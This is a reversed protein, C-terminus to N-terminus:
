RPTRSQLLLVRRPRGVRYLPSKFIEIVEWWPNSVKTCSWCKLTRRCSLKPHRNNRGARGYRCSSERTPATVHSFFLFIRKGHNVRSRLLPTKYTCGVIVIWNCTRVVGLKQRGGGGRHAMRTRPRGYRKSNNKNNNNM